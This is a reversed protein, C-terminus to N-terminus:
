HLSPAARHASSRITVLGIVARAAIFFRQISFTSSAIGAGENKMPM